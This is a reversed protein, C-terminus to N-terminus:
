ETNYIKNTATVFAAQSLLLSVQHCNQNGALLLTLVWNQNHIDLIDLGISSLDPPLILISALPTFRAFYKTAKLLACLDWFTYRLSVSVPQRNLEHSGCWFSRSTEGVRREPLYAITLHPPGLPTRLAKLNTTPLSSHKSALEGGSNQCIFLTAPVIVTHKWYSHRSAILLPLGSFSAPRLISNLSQVRDHNKPVGQYYQFEFLLFRSDLREIYAANSTRRLPKSCSPPLYRAGLEDRLM